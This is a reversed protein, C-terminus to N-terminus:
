FVWQVFRHFALEKGLEARASSLAAEDRHRLPEPWEYWAEGGHREKLAAYLAWDALWPRAAHDQEYEELEVRLARPAYSGTHAFAARLLELKWERAAAFPVLGPTAAPAPPVGRRPLLGESQLREPSILLPNGAFSSLAGYPSDGYSTPGLPLVQWLSFGADRAWDLVAEAVPGFDGIPYPGPLSSPHLLFGARRTHM